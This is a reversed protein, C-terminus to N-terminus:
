YMIGKIRKLTAEEEDMDMDRDYKDDDVPAESVTATEAADGTEETDSAPEDAAALATEGGDEDCSM